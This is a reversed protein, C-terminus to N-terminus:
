PAQGRESTFPKTSAENREEAESRVGSLMVSEVVSEYNVKGQENRPLQEVPVWYKPQKFRSLQNVLAAKLIDV